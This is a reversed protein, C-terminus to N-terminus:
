TLGFTQSVKVIRRSESVTRKTSGNGINRRVCLVATIAPSAGAVASSPDKRKKKGGASACRTETQVHHFLILM